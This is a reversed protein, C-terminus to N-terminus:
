DKKNEKPAAELVRLIKMFREHWNEGSNECEHEKIDRIESALERFIWYLEEREKDNM